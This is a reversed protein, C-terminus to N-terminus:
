VIEVYGTHDLYLWTEEGRERESGIYPLLGYFPTRQHDVQTLHSTGTDQTLRQTSPCDVLSVALGKSM